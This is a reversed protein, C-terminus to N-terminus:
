ADESQEEEPGQKPAGGGLRDTDRLGVGFGGEGAEGDEGPPRGAETYDDHTAPEEELDVAARLVTTAYTGKPLVFYVRICSAGHGSPDDEIEYRLGEVWVRLM